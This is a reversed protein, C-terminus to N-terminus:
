EREHGTGIRTFGIREILPRIDDLLVFEDAQRRLDDSSARITSIVTVRCGNLQAEEVLQRFDGDGTLMVIHDVHRMMRFVDVAIEIDLNGKRQTEGNTEYTKFPKTVLHYGHYAMWDLQVKQPDHGSAEVATYYFIRLLKCRETFLKRLKDFDIRLNASRCASSTNAGDIFVATKEGVELWSITDTM